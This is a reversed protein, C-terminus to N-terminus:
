HRFRRRLWVMIAVAIVVASTVIVIRRVDTQEVVKIGSVEGSILDAHNASELPRLESASKSEPTSSSTEASQAPGPQTAVVPEEPALPQVTAPTKAPPELLADVPAPEEDSHKQRPRLRQPDYKPM